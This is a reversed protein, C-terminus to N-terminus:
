KGSKSPVPEGPQACRHMGQLSTQLETVEASEPEDIM